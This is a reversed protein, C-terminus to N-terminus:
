ESFQESFVIESEINPCKQLATTLIERSSPWTGNLINEYYQNDTEAHNLQNKLDEILAILESPNSRQITNLISESRKCVRCDCM